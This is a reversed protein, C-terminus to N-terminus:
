NQKLEEIEQKLEKIANIMSAWIAEKDFQLVPDGDITETPHHHILEPMVEQVCQALLGYKTKRSEDATFSYSVPNLQIIHNLGYPLNQINEKLRCDSTGSNLDCLNNVFTYCNATSCIGSGIAFSDDHCVCNSAGGLIGSTSGSVFNTTGGGIVSWNGLICNNYGGGITTYLDGTCNLRGGGITSYTGSTSNTCGGGITSCNGTITNTLGGAIVGHASTVNNCAGGGITSTAGTICHEVGGAINSNGFSGSIINNGGGSISNRDCADITNCRGLIVNAYNAFGCVSGSIINDYGGAIFNYGRTGDIKNNNGGIISSHGIFGSANISNTIQNSQGGLISDKLDEVINNCGGAIVSFGGNACNDKGGGVFGYQGSFNSCGGGIVSNNGGIQNGEGGGIFGCSIGNVINGNGGAITTLTGTNTHSSGITLNTTGNIPGTTVLSGSITIDYAEAGTFADVSQKVHEPEITCGDAIESEFNFVKAM